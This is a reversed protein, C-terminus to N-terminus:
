ESMSPPTYDKFVVLIKKYLENELDGAFPPTNEVFAKNLMAVVQDFRDQVFLGTALDPASSELGSKRASNPEISKISDQNGM